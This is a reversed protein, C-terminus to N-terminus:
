IELLRPLDIKESFKEWKGFDNRSFKEQLIINDYKDQLYNSFEDINNYNEFLGDIDVINEFGGYIEFDSKNSISFVLEGIRDCKLVSLYVNENKVDYFFDKVTQVSNNPELITRSGIIYPLTLGNIFYKKNFFHILLNHWYKDKM